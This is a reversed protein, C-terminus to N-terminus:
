GALPDGFTIQGLAFAGTLGFQSIFTKGDASFQGGLSITPGNIWMNRNFAGWFIGFYEIMKDIGTYTGIGITSPTEDFVAAFQAQINEFDFCQDTGAQAFVAGLQNLTTLRAADLAM